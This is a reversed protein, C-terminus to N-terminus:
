VMGVYTQSKETVATMFFAPKNRTCLIINVDLNVYYLRACVCLMTFFTSHLVYPTKRVNVCLVMVGRIIVIANEM